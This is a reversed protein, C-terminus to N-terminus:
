FLNSQIQIKLWCVLASQLMNITRASYFCNVFTFIAMRSFNLEYLERDEERFKICLYVYIYNVRIYQEM